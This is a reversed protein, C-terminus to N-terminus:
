LNMIGNCLDEEVQFCRNSSLCVDAELEETMDIVKINHDKFFKELMKAVDKKNIYKKEYCISM